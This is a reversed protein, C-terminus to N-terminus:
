LCAMCALICVPYGAEMKNVAYLRGGPAIRGDKIFDKAEGKKCM